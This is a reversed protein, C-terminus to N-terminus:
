SVTAHVELYEAKIVTRNADGLNNSTWHQTLDDALASSAPRTSARSPPKPPASINASSPSPRPPAFPYDFLLERKTM